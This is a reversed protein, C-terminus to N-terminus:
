YIVTSTLTHILSLTHLTHEELQIILFYDSKGKEISFLFIATQSGPVGKLFFM